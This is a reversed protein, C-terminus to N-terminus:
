KQFYTFATLPIHFVYEQDKPDARDYRGGWARVGRSAATEAGAYGIIDAWSVLLFAALGRAHSAERLVRVKETSIMYNPYADRKNSRCKVEILAWPRGDVLVEYDYPHLPPAENATVQQGQKELRIHSLFKEMAEAERKRDEAREYIPRNM